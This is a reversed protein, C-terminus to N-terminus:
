RRSPALAPIDFVESATSVSNGAGDTARVVLSNGAARLRQLQEKPVALSWLSPDQSSRVAALAVGNLTV